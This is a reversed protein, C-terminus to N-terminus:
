RLSPAQPAPTENSHRRFPASRWVSSGRYPIRRFQLTGVRATKSITWSRVSSAPSPSSSVVRMKGGCNKCILPDTKFVRRILNAWRKRQTKRETADPHHAVPSPRDRSNKRGRRSYHGYYL